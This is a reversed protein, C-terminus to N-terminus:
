EGSAAVLNAKKKQFIVKYIISFVVAATGFAIGYHFAGHFGGSSAKVFTVIPPGIVASIGFSLFLMNFNMAVTKTGFTEVNIPSLIAAYSGYCMPVCLLAFLFIFEVTITSLVVMAGTCILGLLVLVNLRGLKDSMVGWFLRGGTSAIAFLGVIFAAKEPSYGLSGQVIPSGLALVMMGGVSGCIYAFLILWYMPNRLMESTTLNTVSVVPKAPVGSKGGEGQYGVPIEYLFISGIICGVLFCSGMYLFASDVTGTKGIIFTALPAWFFAGCGYCATYMGAAMGRKEPFLQVVYTAMSLYLMGSGLGALIGFYIYLEYVSGQIFTCMVVGFGYIAAGIFCYRRMTLAARLKSCLLPTFALAAIHLTYAFAVEGTSWNYKQMLPNVFVSWAYVISALLAVVMCAFLSIWRKKSFDAMKQRM